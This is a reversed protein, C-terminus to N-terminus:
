LQDLYPVTSCNGNAGISKPGNLFKSLASKLDAKTVSQLIANYEAHDIACGLILQSAMHDARASPNELSTMLARFLSNKAIIVHDDNLEAEVSILRTMLEKTLMGAKEAQCYILFGLLGADSYDCQFAKAWELKDGDLSLQLLDIQGVLHDSKGQLLHALLSNVIADKTNTAGSESAIAVVVDNKTNDDSRMEGAIFQSPTIIQKSGPKDKSGFEQMQEEILEGPVNNCVLYANSPTFMNEYYNLLKGKTLADVQEDTTALSNGLGKRFSATHLLDLSVAVMDQHFLFSDLKVLHKAKAIEWKYFEPQNL